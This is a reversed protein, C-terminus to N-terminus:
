QAGCSRLTMVKPRNATRMLVASSARVAHVAPWNPLTCKAMSPKQAASQPATIMLTTLKTSDHNM